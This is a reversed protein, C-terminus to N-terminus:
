QEEEGESELLENKFTFQKMELHEMLQKKQHESIIEQEYASV